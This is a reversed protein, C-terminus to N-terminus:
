DRKRGCCSGKRYSRLRWAVILDALSVLQGSSRGSNFAVRSPNWSQWYTTWNRPDNVKWTRQPALRVRAGNAGGRRDTGRYTSASAWAARVLEPVTLGSDLIRSKLVAAMDADILQHGVPPYLIRGSNLNPPCSRAWGAPMPDLIGTLSSTGRKAFADAFEQPDQHFRRSIPEYVPDFRLSLDTTLMITPVRNGSGDPTPALDKDNVDKPTWQWAGAPSKTLEWEYGFLLDFYGNDWKVPDSTWAGELGSTIAHVGM